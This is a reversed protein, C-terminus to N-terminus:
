GKLQSTCKRFLAPVHASRKEGETQEQGREGSGLLRHGPVLVTVHRRGVGRRMVRVGM